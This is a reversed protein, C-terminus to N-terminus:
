APDDTPTKPQPHRRRLSEGKLTLRHAQHLLRDLIADAVTPGGHVRVRPSNGISSCRNAHQLPREGTFAIVSGCVAKM